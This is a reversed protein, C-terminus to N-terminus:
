RRVRKELDIAKATWDSEAFDAKLKNLTFDFLSTKGLRYYCYACKYLSEAKVENDSEYNKDNASRLYLKAAEDFVNEDLSKDAVKLNAKAGVIGKDHAAIEKMLTIGKDVNQTDPSQVYFLALQYKDSIDGSEAKLALKAEEKSFGKEILAIESLRKAYTETLIKDTVKPMIETLLTKEKATQNNKGYIVLMLQASEMYLASEEGIDSLLEAASIDDNTKEACYATWYKINDKAADDSGKRFFDSQLCYNYISYAESYRELSLYGQAQLLLAQYYFVPSLNQLRDTKKNAAIFDRKELDTKVLELLANAVFYSDPYDTVIRNYVEAAKVKSGLNEYCKGCRFLASMGLNDNTYRQYILEFKRVAVSYNKDSFYSWAEMFFSDRRLTEDDVLTTAMQFNNAASAFENQRYC